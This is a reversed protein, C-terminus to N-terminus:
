ITKRKEMTNEAKTHSYAKLGKETSRTLTVETEATEYCQERSRQPKKNFPATVIVVSHTLTTYSGNTLRKMGNNSVFLQLVSRFDFRKWKELNRETGPTM